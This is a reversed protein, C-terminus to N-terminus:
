ARQLRTSGVPAFFGKCKPSGPKADVVAPQVRGRMAGCETPQRDRGESLLAGDPSRGQPTRHDTRGGSPAVAVRDTGDDSFGEQGVAFESTVFELVFVSDLNEILSHIEKELKFSDRQIPVLVNKNTQFLQM